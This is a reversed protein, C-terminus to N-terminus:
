TGTQTCHGHAKKSIKTLQRLADESTRPLNSWHTLMNGQLPSADWKMGQACNGSTKSEPHEPYIFLYHDM